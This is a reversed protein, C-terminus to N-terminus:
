ALSRLNSHEQLRYKYLGMIEPPVYVPFPFSQLSIFGVDIFGRTTSRTTEYLNNCAEETRVNRRVWKTVQAIKNINKIYKENHRTAADVASRRRCTLPIKTGDSVDPDFGVLDGKVMRRSLAEHATTCSLMPALRQLQNGPVPRNTKADIAIKAFVPSAPSPSNKCMSPALTDKIGSSPM